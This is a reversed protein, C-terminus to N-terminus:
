MSLRTIEILTEADLRTHSRKPWAYSPSGSTFMRLIPQNPPTGISCSRSGLCMSRRSSSNFPYGNPASLGGVRPNLGVDIERDVLLELPGETQRIFRLNDRPFYSRRAVNTARTPCCVPQSRPSCPASLVSVAGTKSANVRCVIFSKSEHIALTTVEAM